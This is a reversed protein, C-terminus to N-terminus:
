ASNMERLVVREPPSSVALAAALPRCERLAAGESGTLGESVGALGM